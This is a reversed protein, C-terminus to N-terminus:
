GGCFLGEGEPAELTDTGALTYAVSLIGDASMALYTYPEFLKQQEKFDEFEADLEEQELVHIRPKRLAFRQLKELFGIHRYNRRREFQWCVDIGLSHYAKVKEAIGIDEEHSFYKFIKSNDIFECVPIHDAEQFNLALELRDKLKADIMIVKFNACLVVKTLFNAFGYIKSISNFCM